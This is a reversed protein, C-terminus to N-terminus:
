LVVQVRTNLDQGESGQDPVAVIRLFIPGAYHVTRGVEMIPRLIPHHLVTMTLTSCQVDAGLIVVVPDVPDRLVAKHPERDLPGAVVSAEAMLVERHILDVHVRRDVAYQGTGDFVSFRKPRCTLGISDVVVLDTLKKAEGFTAPLREVAVPRREVIRDILYGFFGRMLRPM